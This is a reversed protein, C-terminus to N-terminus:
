ELSSDKPNDQAPGWNPVHEGLANWLEQVLNTPMEGLVEEIKEISNDPYLIYQDTEVWEGEKKVYKPINTGGFTLSLQRFVVEMSTAQMTEQVGDKVRTRQRFLFRQLKLEDKATPAKFKWYWDPEKEFHYTIDDLIAYNGFKM